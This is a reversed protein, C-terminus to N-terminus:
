HPIEIESDPPSQLVVTQLEGHLKRTAGFLRAVGGGGGDLFYARQTDGKEDLYSIEVWQVPGAVVVYFVILAALLPITASNDWKFFKMFGSSTLAVLLGATFLISFWPIPQRVLSIGVVKSCVVSGRNGQFRLSGPEGSLSGTDDYLRAKFLRSFKAASAFWISKYVTAM